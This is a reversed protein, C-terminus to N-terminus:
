PVVYLLSKMREQVQNNLDSRPLSSTLATDCVHQPIGGPSYRIRRSEGTKMNRFTLSILDIIYTIPEPDAADAPTLKLHVYAPQVQVAFEFRTLFMRLVVVVTTPLINKSVSRGQQQLKKKASLEQCMRADFPQWHIPHLGPQREWEWIYLNSSADTPGGGTGSLFPSASPFLSSHSVLM